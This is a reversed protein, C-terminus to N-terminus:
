FHLKEKLLKAVAKADRESHPLDKYKKEGNITQYISNGIVFAKLEPNRVERYSEVM